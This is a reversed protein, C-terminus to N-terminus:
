PETWTLTALIEEARPVFAEFWGESAEAAIFVARGGVDVVWVRDKYGPYLVWGPLDRVLTVCPEQARLRRQHAPVRSDSSMMVPFREM